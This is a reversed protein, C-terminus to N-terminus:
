YFRRYGYAYRRPFRMFRRTSTFRRGRRYKSRRYPPKNAMIRAAAGSFKRKISGKVIPKFKKPVVASHIADLARSTSATVTHNGTVAATEENSM